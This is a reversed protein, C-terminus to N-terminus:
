SGSPPLAIARLDYVVPVVTTLSSRLVLKIAFQQFRDYTTTGSTYVISATNPSAMFEYEVVDDLSESYVSSPTKRTMQQWKKEEFTEPDALNRIKCYMHIDTNLPKYATIYARIDGADFGESLTVVRTIYRAAALGGEARTESSIVANANALGTGGVLAINAQGVYGSGGSDIIIQTVAGGSVAGVRATAGSGGGGSITVAINAINTYGTGGNIITIASNNIALDNIMNESGIVSFKETYLIPSLHRDNTTLTAKLRFAGDTSAPIVFRTDLDDTQKTIANAYSSGSDKSYSYMLGTNSYTDESTYVYLSDVNINVTPKQNFLTITGPTTTSFVAKKLVFMLDEEQVPTWTSANQSKFFSGLYPQTSVIRTSGIIQKGLESVYVTYELSDTLVVLAYEAGPELYVPGPFTFTTITSSNSVSPNTSTRVYFPDVTVEGGKLIESSHPFGNVVPRIQVTVPLIPDKTAFFLQVSSLFMGGPYLKEDVFFTQALPDKTRVPTPTPTVPTPPPPTPAQPRQIIIDRKVETLGSGLWRFDARMTATELDNTATDIARFIREGARFRLTPLNPLVFVGQSTGDREVRHTGISYKTNSSPVNTWSTTVNAVRTVGNYQAIVGNQGAGSGGCLYITNGLYYGSTTSASNALTVSNAGGSQATGHRHQFGTTVASAGSRSGTVTVGDPFTGVVNALYLDVNGTTLNIASRLVSASNALYTISDPTGWTDVFAPQGQVSLVSARQVYNSVNTNDFFYYVQRQPRLSQARFAVDITRLFPNTSIDVVFSETTGASGQPNVTTTVTPPVVQNRRANRRDRRSGSM